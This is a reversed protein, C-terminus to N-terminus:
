RIRAPRATSTAPRAPTPPRAHAAPPHHCRIGLSGRGSVSTALLRGGVKRASPTLLHLRPAAQWGSRHLGRLLRLSCGTAFTSQFRPRASLCLEGERSPLHLSATEAAIRALQASSSMQREARGYGLHREGRAALTQVDPCLVRLSDRRRVSSARPTAPHRRNLVVLAVTTGLRARTCSRDTHGVVM